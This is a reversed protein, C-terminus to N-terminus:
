YEIKPCEYITDSNDIRTYFHMGVLDQYKFSDENSLVYDYLLNNPLKLLEEKDFAFFKFSNFEPCMVNYDKRWIFMRPNPVQERYWKLSRVSGFVYIRENISFNNTQDKFYNFVGLYETHKLKILYNVQLLIFITTFILVLGVGLKKAKLNSLIQHLGSVSLIILSIEFSSVYRVNKIGSFQMFVLVVIFFLFWYARFLNNKLFCFPVTFIYWFLRVISNEKVLFYLYSWYPSKNYVVSNIVHTKGENSKNIYVNNVERLINIIGQKIGLKYFYHVYTILLSFMGIAYVHILMNVIRKANEKNKYIAYMSILFTFPFLTISTMKTNLALGFAVGSLIYYKKNLTKLTEYFFYHFVLWFLHMLPELMMMRSADFIIKSTSFLVAGLIGYFVGYERKVILYIVFATLVGIIAYPARLLLVNTDFLIYIIGSFYKPLIPVHADDEYMGYIHDAGRHANLIEDTFFHHHNLKYFFSISIFIFAIVVYTKKRTMLNNISM